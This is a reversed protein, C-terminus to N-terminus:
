AAWTIKLFESHNPLWIAIGAGSVLGFHRFLQAGQCSFQELEGYRIEEGSPLMTYAIKDKPHDSLRM